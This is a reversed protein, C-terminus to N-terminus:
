ILYILFHLMFLFFNNIYLKCNNLNDIEILLQSIIRDMASQGESNNIDPELFDDKDNEGNSIKKKEDDQM